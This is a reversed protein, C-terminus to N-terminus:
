LSQGLSRNGSSPAAFGLLGLTLKRGSHVQKVMGRQARARGEVRVELVTKMDGM